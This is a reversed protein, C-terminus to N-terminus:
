GRSAEQKEAKEIRHEFNISPPYSLPPLAVPNESGIRVNFSSKM